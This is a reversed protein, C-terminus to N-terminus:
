VVQNAVSALYEIDIGLMKLSKRSIKGNELIKLRFDNQLERSFEYAWM